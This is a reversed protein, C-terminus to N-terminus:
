KEIGRKKLIERVKTVVEDILVNVKILYTEAGLAMGKEIEEKSGLNSLIIVPIDKTRTGNKIKTLVELGGIGPLILDLLIIDPLETELIKLGTEGDNALFVEFDAKRFKESLLTAMLQDDEVILAKIKM